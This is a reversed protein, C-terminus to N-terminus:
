YTPLRCSSFLLPIMMTMSTWQHVRPSFFDGSSLGICSDRLPCASTSVNLPGSPAPCKIHVHTYAHPSYGSRHRYLQMSLPTLPINKLPPLTLKGSKKRAHFIIKRAFITWIQLVWVIKKWFTLLLLLLFFFFFFLDEGWKWVKEREGEMELKGGRGKWIKRRKEGNKGKGREEKSFSFVASVSLGVGRSWM